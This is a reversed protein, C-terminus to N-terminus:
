TQAEKAELAEARAAEALREAALRIRALCPERGVVELTDFLPPAAKSATVAVRIPQFLPGAKVGEQEALRRLTQELAEATWPEQTLLTDAAIALLEATRATDLKRPVLDAVPAPAPESWFYDAQEVADSLTTLREQLLKAVARLKQGGDGEVDLGAAELFPTLRLALDEEDLARLYHGNMADLRAPDWRAPAPNVDELRFREQAQEPTFLDQDGSFSWGLLCLYNFMAEPLYGADRFENVQTMAVGAGEDEADADADANQSRPEPAAGAQPVTKRKSLKGRGDPNLVMPVHAHAPVRWGFAEYLRLHYATSSVWEDARIVHSIAMHHDDVVVALHYTPWGDSKLLIIDYLDEALRTIEGLVIDHLTFSGAAPMRLRVTFSADEALRSAVEEPGLNRCHGDYPGKLGAARRAQRVEELREASCFCRYADGQELLRAVHEAYLPRRESQVYPGHAGGAFPGEDPTVGLWALGDRFDELAGEVFRERDTDEVRWIFDGGAARAFLWNFLVTRANGVHMYGTPSPAIRVRVRSM